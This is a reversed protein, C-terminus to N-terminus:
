VVSKMLFFFNEILKHSYDSSLFSDPHFQIGLFKKQISEVSMIEGDDSVSSIYTQLTKSKTHIVLSNYRAVEIREPIGKWFPSHFHTIYIKDGHIIHRARRISFGLVSGIVQHGLCIGLIPKEGLFKKVIPYSMGSKRPSYPGSSIVIIDYNKVSNIDIMDNYYIDLCMNKNYIRTRKSKIIVREEKKLLVNSILAVINYTFSDYNDILVIKLM